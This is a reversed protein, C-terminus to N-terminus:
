RAVESHKVRPRSVWATGGGHMGGGTYEGDDVYEDCNSCYTTGDDATAYDACAVCVDNGGDDTTTAVDDCDCDPCSCKPTATNNDM